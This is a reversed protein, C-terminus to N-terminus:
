KIREFLFRRNEKFAPKMVKEYWIGFDELEFKETIFLAFEMWNEESEPFSYRFQSTELELIIEDYAILDIKYTSIIEVIDWSVFKNKFNFGKEDFQIM